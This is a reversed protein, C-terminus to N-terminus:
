FLDIDGVAPTHVPSSPKPFADAMGVLIAFAGRTEELRLSGIIARDLDARTELAEDALAEELVSMAMGMDVLRQQVRDENQLATTAAILNSRLVNEDNTTGLACLANSLQEALDRLITASQNIEYRIFALIQALDQRDCGLREDDHHRFAALDHGPSARVPAPM